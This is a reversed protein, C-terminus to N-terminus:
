ISLVAIALVAAKAENVNAVDLIYDEDVTAKMYRVKWRMKRDKWNAGRGWGLYTITYLLSGSLHTAYLSWVSGDKSEVWRPNFTM